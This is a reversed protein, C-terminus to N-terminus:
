LNMYCVDIMNVEKEVREERGEEGEEELLGRRSHLTKKNTYRPEM